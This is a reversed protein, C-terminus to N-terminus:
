YKTLMINPLFFFTFPCNKQGNRDSMQRFKATVDSYNKWAVVYITNHLQAKEKRVLSKEFLYLGFLYVFVLGM